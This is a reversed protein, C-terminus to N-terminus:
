TRHRDFRPREPEGYLTLAGREGTANPRQFIWNQWASLRGFIKSEMTEPGAFRLSAEMGTLADPSLSTREEIALRVEDEWDLEDPAATVLGADLAQQASLHPEKGTDLRRPHEPNGCFRQALRSLGNGMPFAGENLPSLAIGAPDDADDRMYIRDSALALEFLFGGFCSNGEILTFISRATLELRKLTRGILLRVERLFWDDPRARLQRDLTMVSELEGESRILILGIEEFNFRLEVLVDDLERFLALPYWGSGAQAANDPLPTEATSTAPGRLTLRAVRADPEVSLTLHKYIIENGRREKVLPELAIGQQTAGERVLEAVRKAIMEEWQSPPHLEDVLNWEKARRGKVGEALTCFVDALDRRVHRKDVLRTLGGTGPLVGLYPIEPLSVVSSHDDILHIEKCALALEYGGGSALGNLAALYYQGSHASAEEMALRTENTYKCFNVKFPHSSGRLMFINAGACFLRERASTLVVVSVEPHEFRLRTVADALEVDVSIDYSNLKLAYGPLYGGGEQVDLILYAAPGEVRLKWHKYQQPHSQTELLPRSASSESIAEAQM